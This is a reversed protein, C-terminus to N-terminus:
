HSKNQFLWNDKPEPLLGAQHGIDLLSEIAHIGTSSLQFTESSIYHDLNKQAFNKSKQNSYELVLKMSEEPNTRSYELSRCIDKTIDALIKVGLSRKAVLGGLPLPASTKTTWLDFLDALETLEFEALQFRSEHILLAADCDGSHVLNILDDYPYVHETKAHPCLSRYLMYATTQKGPIGLSLHKLDQLSRVDKRSVIKPGNHVGLCSGVPLLCYEDTIRGLTSFSIKNLHGIGNVSRKNLEEIDLFNFQYSQEASIQKLYIGAFTFIDNAFPTIGVSILNLEKIGIWESLFSLLRSSVLPAAIIM